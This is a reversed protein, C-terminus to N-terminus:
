LFLHDCGVRPQGHKLMSKRAEMREGPEGCLHGGCQLLLVELWEIPAQLAAMALCTIVHSLCLMQIVFMAFAAATIRMRMERQSSKAELEGQNLDRLQASASVASVLTSENPTVERKIMVKFVALAEECRGSQSFGSILSSWSAVNRDPMEDFLYLAAKVNGDKAYGAIMSNWSVPNREPMRDFFWRARDLKGCNSYGTVLATWSVVDVVDSHEDFLKQASSMDGWDSYMTIANNMVFVDSDLGHKLAHCHVGQGLGTSGLLSCSRVLFPFTLRDPWIGSRLMRMYLRISEVPYPSRSFTRIMTNYMFPTPRDISAFLSRAYRLDSCSPVACAALLRAVTFLDSFLGSTIVLAHVRRLESANPFAALCRSLDPHRLVELKQAFFGVTGMGKHGFWMVRM